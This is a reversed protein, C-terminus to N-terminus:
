YTHCSEWRHDGNDSLMTKTTNFKLIKIAFKLRYGTKQLM